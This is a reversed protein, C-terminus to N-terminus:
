LNYILGYENNMKNIFSKLDPTCPCDIQCKTCEDCCITNNYLYSRFKESKGLKYNDYIKKYYWIPHHNKCKDVCRYCLICNDEIPIKNEIYNIIGDIDKKMDEYSISDKIENYRNYKRLIGMLQIPSSCGVLIPINETSFHYKFTIYESPYNGGYELNILISKQFAEMKIIGFDPHAKKYDLAIEFPTKENNHTRKYYLSDLFNDRVMIFDWDYYDLITKVNESLGVYTIGINKCIGTKKLLDLSEGLSQNITLNNWTDDFKRSGFAEIGHVMFYDLYTTNLNNCQIKVSEIISDPFWVSDYASKKTAIFINRRNKYSLWGGVIREMIGGWYTPATDIYNIGNDYGMSLIDMANHDPGISATGLGLQSIKNGCFEVYEM